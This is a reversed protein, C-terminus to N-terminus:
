AVKGKQWTGYSKAIPNGAVEREYVAIVTGNPLAGDLKHDGGSEFFSFNTGYVVEGKALRENLAKKSTAKVYLKM